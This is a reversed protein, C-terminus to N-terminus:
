WPLKDFVAYDRMPMCSAGEHGLGQQQSAGRKKLDLKPLNPLHRAIDELRKWFVEYKTMTESMKQLVDVQNGSVLQPFEIRGWIGDMPPDHYDGESHLVRAFSQAKIAFARSMNEFFRLQQSEDAHICRLPNSPNDHHNYLYCPWIDQNVM